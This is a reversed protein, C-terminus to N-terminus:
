QFLGSESSSVRISPFVSPLLLLPLCLILHISLMVSEIPMFKLLSWINNPLPCLLRAHQLGHTRLTLYLKAVSYCCPRLENRFLQKDLHRSLM